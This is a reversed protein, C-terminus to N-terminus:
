IDTEPLPLGGSENQRGGDGDRDGRRDDSSRSDPSESPEPAPEQAQDKEEASTENTSRAARRARRQTQQVLATEEVTAVARDVTGSAAAIADQVKRALHGPLLSILTQLNSEDVDEGAAGAFKELQKLEAGTLLLKVGGVHLRKLKPKPAEVRSSQTTPLSQAAGAVTAVRAAEQRDQMFSAVAIGAASMTLLCAGLAAVALTRALRIRTIRERRATQAVKVENVTEMLAAEETRVEREVEELLRNAAAVEGARMLTASFSLKDDVVRMSRRSFRSASTVIVNSAAEEAETESAILERVSCRLDRLDELFTRMSM